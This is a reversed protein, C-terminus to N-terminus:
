AATAKSWMHLRVATGQGTSRIQVLDCLHNALWLGRSASVTSSPRVRDVLPQNFRGSDSIECVLGDTGMWVRVVAEGGGYRISNTAVENVAVVLERARTEGLRASRAERDIFGRMAGLQEVGVRMLRHQAAADPFPMPFPEAEARIELRSSQTSVGDEMVFAHTRRAEEIMPTPLASVDYPCLLWLPADPAIAFNLLSEHHLCEALEDPRRGAFAPEGIGRLRKGDRGATAVFDTWVPIILGPNAGVLAMNMLQVQAAQSGLRESLLALKDPTEVVMVAEGAALGDRIFPVASQLYQGDGDYLLAEHRFSM